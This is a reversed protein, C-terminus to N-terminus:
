VKSVKKTHPGKVTVSTLYLSMMQGVPVSGLSINSYYPALGVFDLVKVFIILNNIKTLRIKNFETPSASITSPVTM